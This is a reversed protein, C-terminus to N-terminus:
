ETLNRYHNVAQQIESPNGAIAAAIVRRGAAEIAYRKDRAASYSKWKADQKARRAAVASPAHIGCWWKGDENLKGTKSCDWFRHSEYIEGACKHATM